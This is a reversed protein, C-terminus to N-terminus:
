RGVAVPVSQPRFWCRRLHRVVTPDYYHCWVHRQVAASALLGGLYVAVEDTERTGLLGRDALLDLWAPLVLALAAGQYQGALDLRAGVRVAGLVARAPPLVRLACAAPDDLGAWVLGSGGSVHVDQRPVLCNALVRRALLVRGAPWGDRRFLEGALEMTIRELDLALEPEPRNVAFRERRYVGRVRGTLHDVLSPLRPQLPRGAARELRMHEALSVDRVLAAAVAHLRPETLAAGQMLPWLGALEGELGRDLGLYLAGSLLQVLDMLGAADPFTLGVLRGAPSWGDLLADVARQRCVWRPYHSLLAPAMARARDLFADAVRPLGARQLGIVVRAAQEQARSYLATEGNKPRPAARALRESLRGREGDLVGREDDDLGDAFLRLAWGLKQDGPADRLGTWCRRNREKKKILEQHM